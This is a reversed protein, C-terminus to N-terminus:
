KFGVDVIVGGGSLAIVKGKIVEGESFTQSRGEYAALLTQFDEEQAKPEQAVQSAETEPPKESPVSPKSEPQTDSTDLSM